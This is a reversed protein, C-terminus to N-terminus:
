PTAETKYVSYLTCKQISHHWVCIGAESNYRQRSCLTSSCQRFINSLTTRRSYRGYWASSIDQTYNCTTADPFMTQQQESVNSMYRRCDPCQAANDSSTLCHVAVPTDAMGHAAQTKPKHGERYRTNNVKQKNPNKSVENTQKYTECHIIYTNNNNGRHFHNHKEQSNDTQRDTQRNRQKATLLKM